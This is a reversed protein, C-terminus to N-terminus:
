KVYALADITTQMTDTGSARDRVLVHRDTTIEVFPYVKLALGSVQALASKTLIAAHDKKMYSGLWVAMTGTDLTVLTVFIATAGDPITPSLDLEIWESTAGDEATSITEGNAWGSIDAAATVQLQNNAPKAKVWAYEVPSKSTNAIKLYSNGDMESNWFRYAHNGTLTITDGTVSNITATRPGDSVRPYTLYIRTADIRVFLQGDGSNLLKNAGAGHVGTTLDAHDSDAAIRAAEEADVDAVRATAEDAVAAVVEADRAIGAPIDADVLPRYTWEGATDDWYLFNQDAPAPVRVDGLDGLKIASMNVVVKGNADVQIPLWVPRAGGKYYGWLQKGADNM